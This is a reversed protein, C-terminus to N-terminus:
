WGSIGVMQFRYGNADPSGWWKSIPVMRMQFRNGNTNPFLERNWDSFCRTQFDIADPNEFGDRRGRWLIMADSKLFMADPSFIMADPSGARWLDDGFTVEFM